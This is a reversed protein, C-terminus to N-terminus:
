PLLDLSVSRIVVGMYSHDGKKNDIDNDNGKGIIMIMIIIIIVMIIGRVKSKIEM